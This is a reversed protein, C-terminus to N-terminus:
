DDSEAYQVESFKDTDQEFLGRYNREISREIIAAINYGENRLRTLKKIARFEGTETLPYKIEKRFEKFDDWLQGPIWEPIIIEKRKKKNQKTEKTPATKTVLQSRNKDNAIGSKTVLGNKRVPKWNGYSKQIGYYNPQGPGSKTVVIMNRAQLANIAEIVRRRDLGTADVFQSFAIQDMKKKWGYTKRQIFRYIQWESGSMKVRCEAEFLENAIQIYGDEIQPSTM